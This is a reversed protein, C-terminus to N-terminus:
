KIKSINSIIPKPRTKFLLKKKIIAKVIYETEPKDDDIRKRLRHLVAFPKELNIVKGHLLQHGVILIPTGEKTFHLDGVYQGLLPSGSRSLLDGQIEVLGWAPLGDDGVEALKIIISM